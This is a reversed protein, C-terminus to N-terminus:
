AKKKRRRRAIEAGVLGVGILLVTSPEPITELHKDKSVLLTGTPRILKDWQYAWECDGQIWGGGIPPMNDLTTPNADELKGVLTPYIDGEHRDPDPIVVTESLLAGGAANRQSVKNDNPFWLIDELSENLDFDSYQFLHMDVAQGNSPLVRITEALDSTGSGVGGGLLTYEVTIDFLSHGFFEMEIRNTGYLTAGTFYDGIHTEPGDAGVRVWFSQRYLHDVGDVMWTYAGYDTDIEVLSNFDELTFVDANTCPVAAAIALATLSVLLRKM